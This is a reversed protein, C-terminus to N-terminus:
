DRDKATQHYNIQRFFRKLENTNQIAFDAKQALDLKNKEYGWLAAISKIGATQAATIDNMTDGVMVTDVPSLNHAAILDKIMEPKSLTKDEYFNITRIDDFLDLNLAKLLKTTPKLPKNTAVFLKKGSQKMQKLVSDIEPYVLAGDGPNEDYIKRFGSVVADTEALSAHPTVKAIIERIPPGILTDNFISKDLHFGALRFSGYLSKLISNQSDALTGDLDFIFNVFAAM